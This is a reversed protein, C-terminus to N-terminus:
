YLTRALIDEQVERSLTVFRASFGGVRVMLNPYKEPEKMANELEGRDLVAICLHCGGNEFFSNLLAELKDRHKTFMNRSLKLHNVQGAANLPELKSMSNMLATIGSRDNGPIPNGSNTVPRGSMRGDASAGIFKGLQVYGNVSIHSALCFDINLRKSQESTISNICNYLNLATNDAEADNNGFKPVELMIRREREYGKFNAKLAELLREHTIVKKDFILTKIATLSDSVCMLGHTEIDMGLYRAGSILGKGKEICDDFLMCAFLHCSTKGTTQYIAAMRDAILTIFFEVQKKYAEWLEEFTKFGTFEGTKIGMPKGSIPDAGNFLTVELAKLYSISGNPSSISRHDLSFEGCNSMIYQQADEMCVGFASAVAPVNVDDNYLMPYTFGEGIVDLARAFIAPNMGKYFRLSLQPSIMSSGWQIRRLAEIALLAFRDANEEDPRGMGGIIIRGSGPHMDNILGYLSQLMYLAQEETIRAADIDRAYFDGLYVDMRGFNDVFTLLGYLWFLQVAERFTEPKDTTIKELIEAMDMLEQKRKLNNVASATNRAMCAYYRCVDVLLDLCMKMAEYLKVDVNERDAKEKHEEILKQMCPIGLKLLKEFNINIEAMRPMYTAIFIEKTWDKGEGPYMLANNVEPPFAYKDISKLVDLTTRGRWFEIVEVIKKQYNEPVNGKELESQILREDCFYGIEGEGYSYKFGVFGFESRGAFLDRDQIDTLITPYQARLCMAECIAIHEVEYKCFAETFRIAADLKKTDYGTM